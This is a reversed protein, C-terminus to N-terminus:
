KPWSKSTRILIVCKGPERTDLPLSIVWSKRTFHRMITLAMSFLVYRLIRQSFTRTKKLYISRGSLIIQKGGGGGLKVQRPKICMIPIDLLISAAGMFFDTGCNMDEENYLDQCLKQYSRTTKELHKELKEACSKPTEVLLQLVERAFDQVTYHAPVNDICKLLSVFNALPAENKAGQVIESNYKTNIYKEIAEAMDNDGSGLLLKRAASNRPIQDDRHLKRHVRQSEGANPDIFLPDDLNDAKEVLYQYTGQSMHQFESNM